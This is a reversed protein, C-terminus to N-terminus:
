PYYIALEAGLDLNSQSYYRVPIEQDFVISQNILDVRHRLVVGRQLSNQYQPVGGSIGLDKLLYIYPPQYTFFSFINSTNIELRAQSLDLDIVNGSTDFYRMLASNVYALAKTLSQDPVSRWNEVGQVAVNPLILHEDALATPQSSLYGEPGYAYLTGSAEDRLSLFYPYIFFRTYPPLPYETEGSQTGFYANSGGDQRFQISTILWENRGTPAFNFPGASELPFSDVRRVRQVGGVRFESEATANNLFWLIDLDGKAIAPQPSESERRPQQDIQIKGGIQNASIARGAPIATNSTYSAPAISGDSAQLTYGAPGYGQTFQAPSRKHELSFALRDCAEGRNRMQALKLLNEADM